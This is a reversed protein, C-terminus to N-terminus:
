TGFAVLEVFTTGWNFAAIETGQDSSAEITTMTVVVTFSAASAVKHYNVQRFYNLYACPRLEMPFEQVQSADSPRTPLIWYIVANIKSPPDRGGNLCLEIVDARNRSGGSWPNHALEKHFSTAAKLAKAISSDVAAVTREM